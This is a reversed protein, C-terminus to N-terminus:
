FVPLGGPWRWPCTRRLFPSLLDPEGSPITRFYPRCLAAAPIPLPRRGGPPAELVRNRGGAGRLNRFGAAGERAQVQLLAIQLTRSGLLHRQSSLVLHGGGRLCDLSSRAMPQTRGSVRAGARIGGAGAPWLQGRAGRLGAAGAAEAATAAVRTRRPFRRAQVGQLRERVQM